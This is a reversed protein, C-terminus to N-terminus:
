AFFIAALMDVFSLIATVFKEPMPLTLAELEIPYQAAWSCYEM